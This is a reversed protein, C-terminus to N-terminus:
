GRVQRWAALPHGRCAVRHQVGGPLLGDRVRNRQPGRGRVIFGPMAATTFGMDLGGLGSTLFAWLASHELAFFLAAVTIVVSGFPIMTRPGFRREYLVLLRSAVFSCVSLPVLVLGSVVV